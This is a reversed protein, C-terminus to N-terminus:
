DYICTRGRPSVQKPSRLGPAQEKSYIAVPPQQARSYMPSSDTLPLKRAATPPYDSSKRLRDLSHSCYYSVVVFHHFSFLAQFGRGRAPDLAQGPQPLSEHRSEEQGSPHTPRFRRDILQSPSKKRVVRIVLNSSSHCQQCDSSQLTDGINALDQYTNWVCLTCCTTLSIRCRVILRSPVSFGGVSKEADSLRREVGLSV